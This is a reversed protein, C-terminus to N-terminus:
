QNVLNLLLRVRFPGATQKKTAPGRCFQAQPAVQLESNSIEKTFNM